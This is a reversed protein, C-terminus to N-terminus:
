SAVEVGRAVKMAGKRRDERVVGSPPMGATPTAPEPSDPARAAPVVPRTLDINSVM